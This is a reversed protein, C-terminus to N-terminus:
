THGFVESKNIILETIYVDADIQNSMQPDHSGTLSIESLFKRNELFIKSKGPLLNQHGKKTM